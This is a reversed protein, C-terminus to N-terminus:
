RRGGGRRSYGQQQQPSPPPVFQQPSPHQFFQPSQPHPSHQTFYHGGGGNLQQQEFYPGFFGEQVYYPQQPHQPPSPAATQQSKYEVGIGTKGRGGDGCNQIKEVFSTLHRELGKASAVLNLLEERTPETPTPSSSSDTETAGCDSDDPGSAVECTEAAARRRQVGKLRVKLLWRSVMRANKLEVDTAHLKSQLEAGRVDAAERAAALNATLSKNTSKLAEIQAQAKVHADLLKAVQDSATKKCDAAKGDAAAMEARLAALEANKAEMAAEFNSRDRKTENERRRGEALRTNALKLEDETVLQRGRLEAVADDVKSGHRQMAPLAEADFYAVEARLADSRVREIAHENGQVHLALNLAETDARWVVREKELAETILVTTDREQNSILEAIYREREAEREKLKKIVDNMVAVRGDDAVGASPKSVSTVDVSDVDIARWASLMSKVVADSVALEGGQGLVSSGHRAPPTQMSCLVLESDVYLQGGGDDIPRVTALRWFRDGVGSGWPAALVLLLSSNSSEAIKFMQDISSRLFSGNDFGQDPPGYFCGCLERILTPHDSHLGMRQGFLDAVIMTKPLRGDKSFGIAKPGNRNLLTMIAKSTELVLEMARPPALTASHLATNAIFESAQVGRPGPLARLSKHLAESAKRHLGVEVDVVTYPSPKTTLPRQM